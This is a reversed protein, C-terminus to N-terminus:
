EPLPRAMPPRGSSVGVDTATASSHVAIQPPWRHLRSAQRELPTHDGCSDDDGDCCPPALDLREGLLRVAHRRRRLGGRRRSRARASAARAARRARATEHRAEHKGRQEERACRERRAGAVLQDGGVGVLRGRDRRRGIGRRGGLRRRLGSCLGGGDRASVLGRRRLGRRRRGRRRVRAPAWSPRLGQPPVAPRRSTRRSRRRAGVVDRGRRARCLCGRRDFGAATWCAAPACARRSACSRTEATAARGPQPSSRGPPGTRGGPTPARCGAEDVPAVATAIAFCKM